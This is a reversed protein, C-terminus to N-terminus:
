SCESPSGYGDALVTDQLPVFVSQMTRHSKRRLSMEAMGPSMVLLQGALPDPCSPAQPAASSNAHRSSRYCEERVILPSKKQVCFIPRCMFPLNDSADPQSFCSRCRLPVSVAPSFHSLICQPPLRVLLTVPSNSSSVYNADGRGDKLLLMKAPSAIGQTRQMAHELGNAGTPAAEM